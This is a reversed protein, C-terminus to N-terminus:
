WTWEFSENELEDEKETKKKEEKRNPPNQTITKENQTIWFTMYWRKEEISKNSYILDNLSYNIRISDYYEIFNQGLSQKFLRSLYAISYNFHNALFQLTLKNSYNDNIYASIKTITDYGRIKENSESLDIKFDNMLQAFLSFAIARNTYISNINEMTNFKVISYILYKINDIRSHNPFKISNLNFNLNDAEFQELGFGYQDILVSLVLATNKAKMSHFQRQNIIFIDNEKAIFKEEAISVEIEGDLVIILQPNSHMHMFLADFKVVSFSLPMKQSFKIIKEEERM